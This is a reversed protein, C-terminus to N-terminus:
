AEGADEEGDSVSVQIIQDEPVTQLYKVFQEPTMERIKSNMRKKAASEEIREMYVQRIRDRRWTAGPEDAHVRM